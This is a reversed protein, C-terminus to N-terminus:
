FDKFYLSSHARPGSGIQEYFLIDWDVGKESISIIYKRFHFNGSRINEQQTKM